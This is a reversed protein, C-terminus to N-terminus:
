DDLRIFEEIILSTSPELTDPDYLFSGFYMDIDDENWDCGHRGNKQNTLTKFKDQMEGQDVVDRRIKEKVKKYQEPTM